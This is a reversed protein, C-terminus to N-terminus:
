LILDKSDMHVPLDVKKVNVVVMKQLFVLQQLHCISVKKTFPVKPGKMLTKGKAKQNVESQVKKM